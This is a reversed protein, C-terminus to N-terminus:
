RTSVRSSCFQMILAMCVMTEASALFSDLPACALLVELVPHVLDIVALRHVALLGNGHLLVPPLVGEGGDVLRSLGLEVVPGDDVLREVGLVACPDWGRDSRVLTM